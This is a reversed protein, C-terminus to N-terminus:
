LHDRLGDIGATFCDWRADFCGSLSGASRGASLRSQSSCCIDDMLAPIPILKVLGLNISILAM